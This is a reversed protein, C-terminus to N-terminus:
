AGLARLQSEILGVEEAVHKHHKDIVKQKDDGDPKTVQWAVLAAVGAVAVTAAMATGMQRGILGWQMYSGYQGNDKWLTSLATGLFAGGVLGAGGATWTWATSGKFDPKSGVLDERENKLTEIRRARADGTLTASAAAPGGVVTM